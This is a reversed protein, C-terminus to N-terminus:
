RGHACRRPIGAPPEFPLHRMRRCVGAPGAGDRCRGLAKGHRRWRPCRGPSLTQCLDPLRGARRCGALAAPLRCLGRGVRAAIGPNSHRRETARHSPPPGMGPEFYEFCSGINIFVRLAAGSIGSSDAGDKLVRFTDVECSEGDCTEAKIDPNFVPLGDSDYQAVREPHFPREGLNFIANITNPNYIHDTAMRSTDSTGPYQAGTVHHVFDDIPLGDIFANREQFYQNGLAFVINKWTARNPDVPPDLPNPAAHCVTCTMAVEYPAEVAIDRDLADSKWEFRDRARRMWREAAIEANGNGLDLWADMDFDPNPRLRLGIVGTSFPDACDDIYLGFEDPTTRAVCDPDNLLGNSEFRNDRSRSDVVRLMNSGNWTVLQLRRFFHGREAAFIHWYALGARQSETMGAYVDALEENPPLIGRTGYAYEGAEIFARFRDYQAGDGLDPQPPEGYDPYSLAQATSVYESLPKESRDAQVSEDMCGAALVTLACVSVGINHMTTM